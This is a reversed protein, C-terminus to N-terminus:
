DFPNKVNQLNCVTVKTYIQTTAVNAHGLLEQIHRLSYGDELLHTAFSHRLSHCGTQKKIGAAQLADYFIKQVSRDTYKGGRNTIFVFDNVTKKKVYDLLVNGVKKSMITKRDKAGKGRRVIVMGASFDIDKVSLIIVESVRLGSSYMVALILKHTVNNVSKIIALVEEKTFVEPLIKDKKARPIHVFFKRHLIKSFYFQLASYATNLTSASLGSDVLSELYDKVDTSNINDPAKNAFRLVDKTYYLYSSITNRSFRRLKMEQILNYIPDRESITTRKHKYTDM